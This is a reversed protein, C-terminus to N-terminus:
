EIDSDIIFTILGSITWLPYREFFVDSLVTASMDVPLMNRDEATHIVGEREGGKFGDVSPIELKPYDV